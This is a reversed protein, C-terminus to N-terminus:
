KLSSECNSISCVNAIEEKMIYIMMTAATHQQIHKMKMTLLNMNISVQLLLHVQHPHLVITTKAWIIYEKKEQELKIIMKLSYEMTAPHKKQKQKKNKNTTRNIISGQGM